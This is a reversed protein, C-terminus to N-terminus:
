LISVAPLAEAIKSPLKAKAADRIDPVLQNDHRRTLNASPRVAATILHVFDEECTETVHVKYGRNWSCTCINSGM